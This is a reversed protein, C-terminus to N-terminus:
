RLTNRSWPCFKKLIVESFIDAGKQHVAQNVQQQSLSGLLM